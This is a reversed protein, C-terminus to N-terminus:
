DQEWMIEQVRFDKLMELLRPDQDQWGRLIKEADEVPMQLTIKTSKSLQRLKSNAIGIICEREPTMNERYCNVYLKGNANWFKGGYGLFGCFRWESCIETTQTEVFSKRNNESAGCTMVLIDYVRNAMEPSLEKNEM